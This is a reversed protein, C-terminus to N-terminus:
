EDGKNFYDKMNDINFEDLMKKLDDRDEEIDGLFDVEVANNIAIDDDLFISTENKVALIIADSPRSDIIVSKEESNKLYINSHYINKEIKTIVIQTISYGMKKLTNIYLDHTLPRDFKEKKLAMALIGAECPGIWIPLALHTKELFLFIVPTNSVKDLGMTIKSIIKM